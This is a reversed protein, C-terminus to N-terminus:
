TEMLQSYYIEIIMSYLDEPTLKLMGINRHVVLDYGNLRLDVYDLTAKLSFGRGDLSISNDVNFMFEICTDYQGDVSRKGLNIYSQLQKIQAKKIGEEDLIDISILGIARPHKV